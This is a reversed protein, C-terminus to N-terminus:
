KSCRLNSLNTFYTSSGYTLVTNYGQVALTLIIVAVILNIIWKEKLGKIALNYSTFYCSEFSNAGM